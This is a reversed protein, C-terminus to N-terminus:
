EKVSFFLFFEGSVGESSSLAKVHLQLEVEMEYTDLRELEDSLM